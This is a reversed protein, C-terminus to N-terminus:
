VENDRCPPQIEFFLFIARQAIGNVVRGGFKLARARFSASIERKESHLMREGNSHRRFSFNKRKTCTKTYGERGGAAAPRGEWPSAGFRSM